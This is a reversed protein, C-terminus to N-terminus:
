LLLELNYMYLNQNSQYSNHIAKQHESSLNYDYM